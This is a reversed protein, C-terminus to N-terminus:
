LKLKRLEMIRGLCTAARCQYHVIRIAWQRLPSLDKFDDGWLKDLYRKKPIMFSKRIRTRIEGPSLGEQLDIHVMGKGIRIRKKLLALWRRTSHLVVSGPSYHLSMGSKTAHLTWLTDGGSITIESFMGLVNFCNRRTMLNATVGKGKEAVQESRLHIRRDLWESITENARPPDFMVRGSIIDAGSEKQSNLMSELWNKEPRCDTDTFAIFAGRAHLLGQNRAVYSSPVALQHLLKLHLKSTGIYKRLNELCSAECGNDILIVEFRDRHLTQTKLRNLLRNISKWQDKMPIIVSIEPLPRTRRKPQGAGLEEYISFLTRASARSSHHERVYAQARELVAPLNEPQRSLHLLNRAMQEADGPDSLWGREGTEGLLGPIGACRTSLVPIGRGMAEMLTTPLGEEDGDTATRSPALLAFSKAILNLTTEHDLWGTFFVQGKLGLDRALIELDARDPGDGVIHYTWGPCERSFAAFAKLGTDVGKKEVLRAVTIIQRSGPNFLLQPSNEVGVPLVRVKEEPAGLNILTRQMDPSVALICSAELFLKQYIGEKKQRLYRSCDYGHFSAVLPCKRDLIGKRQLRLLKNANPGFHGHLIDFPSALLLSEATEPTLPNGSLHDNAVQELILKKKDAREPKEWQAIRSPDQELEPLRHLSALPTYTVNFVGGRFPLFWKPNHVSEGPEPPYFLGSNIAGADDLGSILSHIFTKSYVPYPGTLHLVRMSM